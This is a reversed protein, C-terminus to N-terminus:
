GFVNYFASCFSSYLRNIFKTLKIDLSKIKNKRGGISSDIASGATLLSPTVGYIAQKHLYSCRIFVDVPLFIEKSANLFAKACSPSIMYGTTCQPIKLFRKLNYKEYCDVNYFLKTKWPELRIFSHKQIWRECISIGSVFEDFLFFDDELVISPEDIESVKEWALMHSAYCGLEGLEVKRGKHAIFKKENFRDQLPYPKVRGDIADIFEFDISQSKLERSVTKRREVAKKLSIVFINM